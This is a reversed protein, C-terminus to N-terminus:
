GWVFTADGLLTAGSANGAPYALFNLYAGDAVVPLSPADVMFDLEAPADIGRLLCGAIPKVLVLAILGVDATSFTVSQISRVGTDGAALPLFPSGM